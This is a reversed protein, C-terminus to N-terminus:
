RNGIIMYRDYSTEPDDLTIRGSYTTSSLPYSDVFGDLDDYHNVSGPDNDRGQLAVMTGKPISDFWGKNPINNCSTNIVLGHKGLQRYDLDNADKCMSEIRDHNHLKGMIGDGKSLAAEDVDVNIIRDFELNRDLMLLSLNGYWSGLIYITGFSPKISRMKRILWLKSLMLDRSWSGELTNPSVESIRM